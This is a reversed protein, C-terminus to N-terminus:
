NGGLLPQFSTIQPLVPSGAEVTEPTDSGETVIVHRDAALATLVSEEGSPWKVVLRDVQEADGLGFHVLLPMQSLYSKVAFNERVIQRDGVTAILRAGSGFRNSKTGRLTVKLYHQQPFNNEYLLLPGGGVQRVVLELRGDNNFDAALSARADGDNDTQSVYSIDLFSRGGANLFMRNREFASLNHEQFIQWPSGVWFENLEEDIEGPQPVNCNVDCPQSM